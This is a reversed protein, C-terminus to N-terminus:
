FVKHLSTIYEVLACEICTADQPKRQITKIESGNDKMANLILVREKRNHLLNAVVAHVGYNQVAGKAKSILIDEDTELKFSVVFSEPAWQHRLVGLAKPVGQLHLQLNGEASQIKHELMENWPLYFDSVAAALYFMVQKGFVGIAKSLWELHKMYEFITKFKVVHLLGEEQVRHWKELMEKLADARESKVSVTESELELFETLVEVPNQSPLHLTYPQFSQDRTLFIVCYGLKLFEEASLAGRTGTTFNDIFRVCRKELPVTTGGSTLLVLPRMLNGDANIHKALFAELRSVEEVSPDPCGQLFATM